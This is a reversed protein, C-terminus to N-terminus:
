YLGMMSHYFDTNGSNFVGLGNINDGGFDVGTITVFNSAPFNPNGILAGQILEQANLTDDITVQSLTINVSILGLLLLTKKM